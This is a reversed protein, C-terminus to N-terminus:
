RPHDSLLLFHNRTQLSRDTPKLFIHLTQTRTHQRTLGQGRCDQSALRLPWYCFLVCHTVDTPRLIHWLVDEIMCPETASLFGVPRVAANRGENPLSGRGSRPLALAPSSM